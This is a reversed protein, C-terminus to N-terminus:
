FRFNVGFRSMWGFYALRYTRDPTGQYRKTPSNTVNIFEAYVGIRKTIAQNFNFDLQMRQDQTVDNEEESAISHLFAGNYNLNVRGTFGKYDFALSANGTHKAQGPLSMNFRDQTNADAGTFTYNLVASLGKWVGPLQDFQQIVNLEFGYIVARDGNQEQQFRFGATEGLGMFNDEQLTPIIRTFQFRDIHKFFLGGSIIGGRRDYLEYMLDLNNAQSASLEPNGLIITAVDRDYNVFPVIHNFNPRAYSQTYAFRLNSLSNLSYKLQLNPLLFGYSPAGTVPTTEVTTGVRKVEFADYKVQNYEYRAGALVLLKDVQLRTMAYGAYVDESADYTDNLSIRDSDWLDTPALLRHYRNIYNAFRDPDARFGYDFRGNLFEIPETRAVVHAFAEADNIVQNPDNFAFITNRRYKSNAVQRAKGGFKLNGKYGGLSYDKGINFKFVRNYGDTTEVDNEYRRLTNMILPNNLNLEPNAPIIEPIEQLTRGNANAIVLELDDSAFDGIERTHDRKSLTYVLGWDATWDGFTHFGELNFNHNVKLERWLAIDRRIRSLSSTADETINWTNNRALDFRTRNRIDDDERSNMMYNFIFDHNKIKYDITATTGIRTRKNETKRMQYDIPMFTFDREEPFRMARWESDMRDEANNTSYYSGSVMVGLRGQPNNEDAFFRKALRLRGTGNVNGALDNFGGGLDGRLQWRLTRATPTRLNINGGIADGDMDPTLSKTVEMSGLQDAPILDLAEARGGGQQVSVIQEGNISINTFHAPTGRITVTSGEGKDRSINVGPVRQLAEAVNQDPFRGILDASIINKINDASKQQNLARTQGEFNNGVVTVGEITGLLANMQITVVQNGAMPFNFTQQVSEYGLYRMTLTLKDSQINGMRFYGEMDTSVTYNGVNDVVTAGILPEKSQADIIRGRIQNSPQALLSGISCFALLVLLVTNKLEKM